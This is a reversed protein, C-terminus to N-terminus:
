TSGGHGQRRLRRRDVRYKAARARVPCLHGLRLREHGQGRTCLILETRALRLSDLRGFGFPALWLAGGM